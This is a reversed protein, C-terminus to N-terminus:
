TIPLLINIELQCQRHHCSHSRYPPHTATYVPGQGWVQQSWVVCHSRYPTNTYTPPLTFQDRAVSRNHHFLSVQLSHQHLHTATYVPGQGDLGTTIVRHSRYPTNTYTPPLTFQDWAVSVQQSSVVCHSRYLTNTYTPPLTFQDRAVTVQRSSSFAPGLLMWCCLPQFGHPTHSCFDRQPFLPSCGCASILPHYFSNSAWYFACNPDPSVNAHVPFGHGPTGTHRAGKFWWLHLFPFYCTFLECELTSCHM